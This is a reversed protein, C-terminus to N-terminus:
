KERPRWNSRDRKQSQLIDRWRKLWNYHEIIEKPRSKPSKKDMRAHKWEQHSTKM